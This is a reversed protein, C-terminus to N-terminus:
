FYVEKFKKEIIEHTKRAADRIEENLDNQILTSLNDIVKETGITQLINLSKKRVEFSESTNEAIMIVKDEFKQNRMYTLIKLKTSDNFTSFKDTIIDINGKNPNDRSGEITASHLGENKSLLWLTILGDVVAAKVDESESSLNNLLKERDLRGLSFATKKKIDLNPDDKLIGELIPIAQKNGALGIKLIVDEKEKGQTNKLQRIYPEIAITNRKHTTRIIIQILSLFIIIVSILM